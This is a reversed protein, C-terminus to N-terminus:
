LGLGRWCYRQLCRGTGLGAVKESVPPELTNVVCEASYTTLPSLVGKMAEEAVTVKECM